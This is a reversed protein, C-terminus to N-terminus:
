EHADFEMICRGIHEAVAPVVANGLGKLRDMRRSIGDAKGCIRPAASWRDPRTLDPYQRGSRAGAVQPLENRELRPRNTDQLEALLFLRERRHDAGSCCARYRFPLVAYDLRELEARFRWWTWPADKRVVSPNERLVFRPRLEDVIRIFEGGLSEAGGGHRWANSNRQCPDGGAILDPFGVTDTLEDTGVCECEGFEIECRPCLVNGWEDEPECDYIRRCFKTVDAYKPVEPWHKTLVKRCYGDIEVQAVCQMGSRELGLDMGGIGAFLSIFKM